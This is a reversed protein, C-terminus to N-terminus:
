EGAFILADIEAEAAKLVGEVDASWIDLGQAELNIEEHEGLRCLLRKALRLTRSGDRVCANIFLTKM